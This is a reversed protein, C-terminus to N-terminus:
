IGSLQRKIKALLAWEEADVAGDGDLDFADFVQLCRM